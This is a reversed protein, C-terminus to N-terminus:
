TSREKPPHKVCGTFPLGINGAMLGSVGHDVHEATVFSLPTRSSRASFGIYLKIM